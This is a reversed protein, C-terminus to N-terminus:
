SHLTRDEVTGKLAKYSTVFLPSIWTYSKLSENDTPERSFRGAFKQHMHLPLFNDSNFVKNALFRRLTKFNVLVTPLLDFM